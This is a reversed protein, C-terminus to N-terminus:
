LGSGQLFPQLATSLVCHLGLAAEASWLWICGGALPQLFVYSSVSSSTYSYLLATPSGYRCTWISEQHHLHCTRQKAASAANRTELWLATPTSILPPSLPVLVQAGAGPVKEPGTLRLRAM